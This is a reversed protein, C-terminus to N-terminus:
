LCRTPSDRSRVPRGGTQAHRGGGQFGLYPYQLDVLILIFTCLPVYDAPLATSHLEHVERIGTPGERIRSTIRSKRKKTDMNDIAQRQYNSQLEKWRISAM